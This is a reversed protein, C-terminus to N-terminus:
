GFFVSGILFGGELAEANGLVVEDLGAFGVFLGALPEVGDLGVVLGHLGEHGVVVVTPLGVDSCSEIKSRGSAAPSSSIQSMCPPWYSSM